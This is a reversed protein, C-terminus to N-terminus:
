EEERIYGHELLSSDVWVKRDEDRIAIVNKRYVDDKAVQILVIEETKGTRPGGRSTCPIAVYCGEVEDWGVLEAVWAVAADTIDEQTHLGMVQVPDLITEEEPDKADAVQEELLAAHWAHLWMFAYDDASLRAYAGTETHAIGRAQATLESARAELRDLAAKTLRSKTAM